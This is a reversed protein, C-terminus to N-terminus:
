KGKMARSRVVSPGRHPILAKDLQAQIEAFDEPPLLARLRSVEAEVAKKTISTNLLLFETGLIERVRQTDYDSANQYDAHWLRNGVGVYDLKEQQLYMRFDADMQKVREDAYKRVSSFSEREKFWEEWNLNPDAMNNVAKMRLMRQFTQCSNMRPCWSCYPNIKERNALFEAESLGQHEAMESDEVDRLMKASISDLYKVFKDEDFDEDSLTVVEQEDIYTWVLVIKVVKFHEGNMAVQSEIQPILVHKAYLYYLTPQVDKSTLEDKDKVRGTKYDEIILTLFQPGQARDITAVRDIFGKVPRTWKGLIFGDFAHEVAITTAVHIPVVPNTCEMEFLKACLDYGRKFVALSETVREQSCAAYYAEHLGELTQPYGNKPDRWREAAGHVLTGAETYQNSTRVRTNEDYANLWAAPCDVYKNISSASLHKFEM